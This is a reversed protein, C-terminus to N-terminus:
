HMRMLRSAATARTISGLISIENLAKEPEDLDYVIILPAMHEAFPGNQVDGVKRMASGTAAAHPKIVDILDKGHLMDFTYPTGSAGKVSKRHKFTASPDRAIVFPEVAAVVDVAQPELEMSEAAWSAVALLGTIALAFAGPAHQERAMIAIDGKESLVLHHRALLARLSSLRASQWVDLGMGGILFLTDGNDGIKVMGDAAKSLYLNIASGDPLSFPTGIELCMEGNLDKLAQCDYRSLSHAWDCTFM